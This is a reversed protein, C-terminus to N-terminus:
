RAIETIEIAQITASGGGTLSVVLQADENLTADISRGGELSLTRLTARDGAPARLALSLFSAPMGITVVDGTKAQCRLSKSGALPKDASPQCDTKVQPENAAEARAAGLPPKGRRALEIDDLDVAGGGRVGVGLYFGSAQPDATFNAERASTAGAELPWTTTTETADPDELSRLAAYLEGAQAARVKLKATLEDGPQILAPEAPSYRGTIRIRYHHGATLPLAEPRSKLAVHDGAGQATVSVAGGERKFSLGPGEATALAAEARLTRPASVKAAGSNVRQDIERVGERFRVVEETRSFQRKKWLDILSRMGGALLQDKAAHDAPTVQCKNYSECLAVRQEKLSNALATAAKIAEVRVEAGRGTGAHQLAGSTSFSGFDDAIATCDERPVKGIPAKCELTEGSSLVSSPSASSAAPQQSACAALILPLCVLPRADLRPALLPRLPM